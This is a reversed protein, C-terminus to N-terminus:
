LVSYWSVAVFLLYSALPISASVYFFLLLCTPGLTKEQLFYESHKRLIEDSLLNPDIRKERRCAEGVNLTSTFFAQLTTDVGIYAKVAISYKPFTAPM